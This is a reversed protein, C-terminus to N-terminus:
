LSLTHINYHVYHESENQLQCQDHEGKDFYAKITLVVQNKQCWHSTVYHEGPENARDNQMQIRHVFDKSAHTHHFEAGVVVVSEVIVLKGPKTTEQLCRSAQKDLKRINQHNTGCVVCDVYDEIEDREGDYSFKVIENIGRQFTLANLAQNFVFSELCFHEDDAM